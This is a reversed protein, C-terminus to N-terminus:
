QGVRGNMLFWNEVKHLWSFVNEGDKGRFKPPKIGGVRGNTGTRPTDGSTVSGAGHPQPEATVERVPPPPNRPPFMSAGRVFASPNRPDLKFSTDLAPSPGRSAPPPTAPKMISILAKISGTLAAVESNLSKLFDVQKEDAKDLAEFHDTLTEQLSGLFQTALTGSYFVRASSSNEAETQGVAPEPPDPPDVPGLHPYGATGRGRGTM